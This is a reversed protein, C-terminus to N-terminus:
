DFSLKKAFGKGHICSFYYSMFNKYGFKATCKRKKKYLFPFKKEGSFFNHELISTTRSWKLKSDM